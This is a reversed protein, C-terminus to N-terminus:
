TDGREGSMRALMRQSLVVDHPLRRLQAADVVVGQRQLIQQLYAWHDAEMDEQSRGDFPEDPGVVVRATEQVDDVTQAAWIDPMDDDRAADEAATSARTLRSLGWGRDNLLVVRGGDSLEAEHRASVSMERLDAEHGDIDVFTGLCTLVAM